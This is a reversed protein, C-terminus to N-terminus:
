NIRYSIASMETNSEENNNQYPFQYIVIKMYINKGYLASELLKRITNGTTFILCFPDSVNPFPM